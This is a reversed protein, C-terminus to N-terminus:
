ISRLLRYRLIFCNPIGYEPLSFPSVPSYFYDAIQQRGYLTHCSSAGPHPCAVMPAADRLSARQLPLDKELRAAM